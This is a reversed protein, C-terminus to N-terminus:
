TANGEDLMHASLILRPQPGENEQKDGRPCGSSTEAM